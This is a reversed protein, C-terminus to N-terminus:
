KTPRRLYMWYALLVVGLLLEPILVQGTRVAFYIFMCGLLLMGFHILRLYWRDDKSVKYLFLRMM